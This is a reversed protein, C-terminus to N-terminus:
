ARDGRRGWGISGVEDLERQEFRAREVRYRALAKDRLRELIRTARQAGVVRVREQEVRVRSEDARLEARSVAARMRDAAQQRVALTGAPVGERLEARIRRVADRSRLEVERAQQVLSRHEIQAQVLERRRTELANRRLELVRDLRFRFGRM